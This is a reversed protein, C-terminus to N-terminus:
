FKFRRIVQPEDFDEFWGKLCESHLAEVQTAALAQPRLLPTLLLLHSCLTDRNTIM